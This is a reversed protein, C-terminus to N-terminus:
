PARESVTLVNRREEAQSRAMAPIANGGRRHFGRSLTEVEFSANRVELPARVVSSMPAVIFTEAVSRMARTRHRAQVPIAWAPDHDGSRCWGVNLAPVACRRVSPVTM